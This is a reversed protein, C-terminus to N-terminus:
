SGEMNIMRIVSVSIDGEFGNVQGGEKGRKQLRMQNVDVKREHPKRGNKCLRVM